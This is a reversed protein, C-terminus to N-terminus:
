CLAMVLYLYANDTGSTELFIINGGVKRKGYIVPIASNASAKNVLVGKAMQEAINDMHPIDPEDPKKLWGIVQIGISIWSIWSSYKGFFKSVKSVTKIATDVVEGM